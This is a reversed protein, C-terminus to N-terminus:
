VYASLIAVNGIPDKEVKADAVSVIDSYDKKYDPIITKGLSSAASSSASAVVVSKNKSLFYLVIAGLVVVAIVIQISNKSM